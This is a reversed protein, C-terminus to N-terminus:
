YKNNCLIGLNTKLIRVVPIENLHVIKNSVSYVFPIFIYRTIFITVIFSFLFFTLVYCINWFFSVYFINLMRIDGTLFLEIYIILM